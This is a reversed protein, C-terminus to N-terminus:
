RCEHLFRWQYFNKKHLHTICVCDGNKIYAKEMAIMQVNQENSDDNKM